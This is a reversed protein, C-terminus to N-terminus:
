SAKYKQEYKYATLNLSVSVSVQTMLIHIIKKKQKNPTCYMNGIYFMIMIIHSSYKMVYFIFHFFFLYINCILLSCICLVSLVCDHLYYKVKSSCFFILKTLTNLQTNYFTCTLANAFVEAKKKSM